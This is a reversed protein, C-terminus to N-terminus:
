KKNNGFIILKSGNKTDYKEFCDGDQRSWMKNINFNYKELKSFINDASAKIFYKKFEGIGLTQKKKFHKINKDLINNKKVDTDYILIVIAEQNIRALYLESLESNVLNFVDVKGALLKNYKPDKYIRIFKEECEGEVLYHYIKSVRVEWIWFKSLM